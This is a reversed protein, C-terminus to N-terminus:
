HLAAAEVRRGGRMFSAALALTMLVLCAAFTARMAAVFPGPVEASPTAGPIGAYHRFMVTLLLGGLSIGLLSGVGFMMQVLGTAFGRYERPVSGIIATQNPTNFFGQGLGTGALVLAPLLWHSDVQLLLGLGFAAMIMALGLSAPFRPGIRDTLQGAVPALSMTLVPASLFLLGMFSPSLHLVNQIYFPLVFTLVGSTIAYALLSLVSFAFMRIRFLALNLVPNVARRQHALFGVLGLAFAVVMVNQQGIGIAEASRQDVLLALVGTLVVLLAAGVYDVSTSAAAPAQRRGRARLATLALGAVGIPVLLFFTWRWSLVDILLGGVPPGLLVGGHFSMTMFGNARGEAGEPMADMALVRAASAIMAAGIGQALRFAILWGVGPALGCLLSSVTMVAFGGGYIAYRGHIDGLRGFVISLSIGALQYAILAWSVALIDANLAAAITPLSVVFIRTALGAIFQGTIANVLLLVDTRGATLM